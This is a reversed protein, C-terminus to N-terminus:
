NIESIKERTEGRLQDCGVSLINEKPQKFYRRFLGSKSSKIINQEKVHVCMKTNPM